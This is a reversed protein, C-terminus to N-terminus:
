SVGNEAGFKLWDSHGVITFQRDIDSALPVPGQAVVEDDWYLKAGSASHSVTVLVWQGAPFTKDSEM